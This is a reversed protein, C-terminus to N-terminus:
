ASQWPKALRYPGVCVPDNPFAALDSRRAPVVSTWPQALAAGLNMHASVNEPEIGLAKDYSAIAAAASDNVAMVDM